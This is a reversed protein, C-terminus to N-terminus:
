HSSFAALSEVSNRGYKKNRLISPSSVAIKPTHPRSYSIKKSPTLSNQMKRIADDIGLHPNHYKSSSKERSYPDTKNPILDIGRPSLWHRHETCIAFMGIKGLRIDDKRANM